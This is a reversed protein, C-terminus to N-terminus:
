HICVAEHTHTYVAIPIQHAITNFYRDDNPSIYVLRHKHVNLLSALIYMFAIEYIVISGLSDWRM